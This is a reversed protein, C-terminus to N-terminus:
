HAGDGTIVVKVTRFAIDLDLALSRKEIYLIDLAVKNKYGRATAPYGAVVQALGTIGARVELRRNFSPIAVSLERVLEPREPRPGILSMDGLVVNFLQPLEDIRSLRLFRGLHTVRPDSKSAWVAGTSLEADVKMSRFKLLTFVRGGKTLRKQTFIIPGRSSLRIALATSLMLPSLFILLLSAGVIDMARKWLDYAKDQDETKHGHGIYGVSPALVPSISTVSRNLSVLGLIVSKSVIM